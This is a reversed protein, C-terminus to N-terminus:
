PRFCQFCALALLFLQGLLFNRVIVFMNHSEGHNQFVFITIAWKVSKGNINFMFFIEVGAEKWRTHTYTKLYKM